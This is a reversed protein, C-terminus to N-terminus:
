SGTFYVDFLQTNAPGIKKVIEFINHKIDQKLKDIVDNGNQGLVDNKITVSYMNSKHSTGSKFRNISDITEIKQYPYASEAKKMKDVSIESTTTANEASYEANDYYKLYVKNGCQNIDIYQRAPNLKSENEMQMSYTSNYANKTAFTESFINGEEYDNMVNNHLPIENICNYEIGSLDKVPMYHDSLSIDDACSRYLYTHAPLAKFQRAYDVNTITSMKNDAPRDKELTTGVVTTNSPLNAKNLVYAATKFQVVKKDYSSLQPGYINFQRGNNINKIKSQHCLDNLDYLNHMISPKGDLDRISYANANGTSLMSDDAAEISAAYTIGNIQAQKKSQGIPLIDLDVLKSTSGSTIKNFNIIKFQAM